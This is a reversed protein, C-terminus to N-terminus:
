RLQRRIAHILTNASLDDLPMYDAGLADALERGRGIRVYGTETDLLLAPVTLKALEGAASQTQGWSDGGTDSLPVNAKGDSLLVLLIAQEPHDHQVRHLTEHALVLAHALPTRGGTPLRQLQKEALEVSRTPALILEADTGRFAIVGVRDRQQYADTLLSLVAGKVAAMRARAAMSGSADVVFLILTDATSTRVKQRLNDPHVIPKGSDDTGNPAAARLTADLAPDDPHDNQRSRTYHGRKEGQVPNRRGSGPEGQTRGDVRLRKIQEPKSATFTQVTNDSGGDPPADDEGPLDDSEAAPPEDPPQNVLDDLKDRDLEPPEFPQRRRRHPLVWEAARRVDQAIVIEREEWAALARATKHLTIDARLGDVDFETCIHSILMLMEDDLQVQLLRQKAHQIGQQLQIEKNQWSEVFAVPDTEFAIRRRVVETRQAPDRPAAVDVMLGFRDLLQPRLDGEEPNMTGILIFRAPHTLTLGERQVTNVGMAAADLLVDVLHAPLLNVEDIYLIGRNAAALLGPHFVREGTKLAAQFDLSGLVRDETAGIPLDVFPAPVETIEADVTAEGPYDDTADPPRNYPDGAIVQISPLLRALGRAVTSKATGKEGRILVGGIAPYIANLILVTKLDDQEVLASFPYLERM